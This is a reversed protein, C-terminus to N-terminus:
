ELFSFIVGSEELFMLLNDSFDLFIWHQLDAIGSIRLIGSFYSAQFYSNLNIRLFLGAWFKLFNGFNNTTFNCHLTFLSLPYVRRASLDVLLINKKLFNRPFSMYCINEKYLLTDM